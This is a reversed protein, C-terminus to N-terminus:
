EEKLGMVYEKWARTLKEEDQKRFFAKNIEDPLKGKQLDRLYNLMYKRLKGGNAHAFFHVVSWAAAYNVDQDLLPYGTKTTYGRRKQSYFQEQSLGFLNSLTLGKGGDLIRKVMRLREQNIDGLVFDFNKGGKGTGSKVELRSVEFYSALGENIWTPVNPYYYSVFQHLGEHYFSSFDVGGLPSACILSRQGPVFMAASTKSGTYDRYEMWNRLLILVFREDPKKKFKFVEQYKAHIADMHHEALKTKEDDVTSLVRYFNSNRIIPKLDEQPHLSKCRALFGAEVAKLLEEHDVVLGWQELMKRREDRDKLGRLHKLRGALDSGMSVGSRSGLLALNGPNPSRVVEEVLSNRTARGQGQLSPQFGVGVICICAPVIIIEPIRM